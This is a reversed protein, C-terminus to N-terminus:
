QYDNTAWGPYAFRIQSYPQGQMVVGFDDAGIGALHVLFEDDAYPAGRILLQLFHWMVEYAGDANM